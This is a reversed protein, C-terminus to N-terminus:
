IVKEFESTFKNADCSLKNHEVTGINYLPTSMYEVFIIHVCM